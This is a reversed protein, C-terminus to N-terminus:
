VALTVGRKGLRVASRQSPGVIWAEVLELEEEPDGYKTRYREPLDGTVIAGIHGADLLLITGSAKGKKRVVAQRVLDVADEGTGRTTAAGTSALERWLSQNAPVSVVQVVVPRGDILLCADEGRDDRSGPGYEVRDGRERLAGILVDVAHGEASRGRMLPETLEATFARTAETVSHARGGSAPHSEVRRGREADLPGEIVTGVPYGTIGIHGPEANISYSRPVCECGEVAPDILCGCKDCVAM